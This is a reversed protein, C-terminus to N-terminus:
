FGGCTRRAQANYGQNVAQAQRNMQAQSAYSERYDGKTSCAGTAYVSSGWQKGFNGTLNNINEYMQGQIGSADLTVYQMYQPRLHNEVEVRDNASNCGRRKTYFSDACVMQGKLNMGDWPICLANNPNLFRDSNVRSAWGQDVKCTRLSAELSLSSM